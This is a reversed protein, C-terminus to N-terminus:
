RMENLSILHNEGISSLLHTTADALDYFLTHAPGVEPAALRPRYCQDYPVPRPQHQRNFPGATRLVAWLFLRDFDVSYVFILEFDWCYLPSSAEERRKGVRV